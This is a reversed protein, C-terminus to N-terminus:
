RAPRPGSWTGAPVGRPRQQGALGGLVAAIILFTRAAKEVEQAKLKERLDVLASFGIAALVGLVFPLMHLIMSPARFKNFFPLVSFLLQYFLSFNRGLSILLIAVTLIAMFIAMRTRRYILAVVTLLLPIIGVYVTSNTWPEIAGWYLDAQFGFFGPILLTLIESPSWSWNTAYDYALGGTSGATGGGRMSFQAYEYVSLYIYSSICLGVIMGGIFLATKKTVLLKVFDGPVLLGGLALITVGSAGTFTTFLACVFTAMVAVGGPMWGFIGKYARVLRRAAGGEALVYGAATLLPIAPLTASSVLNFTATPVAAIAEPGADRFFLAM